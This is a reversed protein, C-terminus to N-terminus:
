RELLSIARNWMHLLRGTMVTLGGGSGFMSTIEVPGIVGRKVAILITAILILACVGIISLYVYREFRFLSTIEKVAQVRASFDNDAMQDSEFGILCFQLYYGATKLFRDLIKKRVTNDLFVAQCREM